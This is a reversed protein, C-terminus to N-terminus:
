RWSRLKLDDSDVHNEIFYLMKPVRVSNFCETYIMVHM